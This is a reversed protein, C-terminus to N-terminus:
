ALGDEAPEARHLLFEARARDLEGVVESRLKELEKLKEPPTARRRAQRAKRRSRAELAEIEELAVIGSVPVSVAWVIGPAVGLWEVALWGESVYLALFVVTGTILKITSVFTADRV